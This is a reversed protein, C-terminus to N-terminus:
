TASGSADDDTTAGPTAVDPATGGPATGDPLTGDPAAPVGGAPGDGDPGGQAPFGRDEGDGPGYGSPAGPVGTRDGDPGTARGVAFGGAASGLLLLAALAGAAAM